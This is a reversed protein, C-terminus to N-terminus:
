ASLHLLAPPLIQRALFPVSVVGFLFRSFAARHYRWRGCLIAAKKITHLLHSCQFGDTGLRSPSAAHYGHYAFDRRPTPSARANGDARGEHEYGNMERPRLLRRMMRPCHRPLRTRRVENTDLIKDPRWLVIADVRRLWSAHRSPSLTVRGGDSVACKPSRSVALLWPAECAVFDQHLGHPRVRRYRSIM